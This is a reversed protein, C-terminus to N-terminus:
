AGRGTQGPRRGGNKGYRGAKAGDALRKEVKAVNADFAAQNAPALAARLDTRQAEFLKKMAEREAAGNQQRLAKAGATDGRQRAAQIADRQPKFKARLARRQPAYKANVNKINAKEADSLKIGRFLGAAAFGGRRHGGAEGAKAGHQEHARPAPTTSQQAAAIGSAGAILLAAVSLRIHKM